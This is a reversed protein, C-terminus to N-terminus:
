RGTSPSPWRGSGSHSLPFAGQGSPSPRRAATDAASPTPAPHPRRGTAAGNRANAQRPRPPPPDPARDRREDAARLEESSLARASQRVATATATDCRDAQSRGTRSQRPARRAPQVPIWPRNPGSAPAAVHLDRDGVRDIRGSLRAGDPPEGARGRNRHRARSPRDSGPAAHPPRLDPAHEARDQATAIFSTPAVPRVPRVLVPRRVRGGPVATDLRRVLCTRGPVGSRRPRRRLGCGGGHSELRRGLGGRPHRPRTSTRRCPLVRPEPHGAVSEGPRGAPNRYRRGGGRRLGRRPRATRPREQHRPRHGPVLRPRAPVLPQHPQDDARRPIRARQPSPGHRLGPRDGLARLDPDDVVPRVPQVAAGHPPPVQELRRLVRGRRRLRRLDPLLAANAAAAAACQVGGLPLRTRAGTGLRRLPRTQHHRALPRRPHHLHGKCPGGM